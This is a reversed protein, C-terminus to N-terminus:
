ADWAPTDGFREALFDIMTRMALPMQKRSAYVAYIGLDPATWDALVRVLAGARIPEAAAFTPLLAVGGGAIAARLLVLADNASLNGQVPVTAPEGDRTLHWLSQGFYAYTLCNHRALDHPRKPAGHEALYGPSACLVSRCTGLRRAILSPDVENTIRIALDIREDVLDATRDTVLLDVSVAPYRALYDLVADTVHTQAFIASATIRLAGRPADGPDAVVTAVHDALGLMDRCLPLMQAGAATLTLRRTTRHLLRAGSWQEIFAVYRSAMARSMDLHQAAASVSGREATEVFVQMATIRDM